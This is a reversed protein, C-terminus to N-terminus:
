HYHFGFGGLFVRFITEKLYFQAGQMYDLHFWLWAPTRRRWSSGRSVGGASAWTEEITSALCAEWKAEWAKIASKVFGLNVPFLSGWNFSQWLWVPRHGHRHPVTWQHPGAWHVIPLVTRLCTPRPQIFFFSLSLSLSVPLSVPMKYSTIKM